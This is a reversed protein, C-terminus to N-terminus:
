WCSNLHFHKWSVFCLFPVVSFGALIRWLKPLHSKSCVDGTCVVFYLPWIFCFPHSSFLFVFFRLLVAPTCAEKAPLLFQWSQLLFFGLSTQCEVMGFAPMALAVWLMKLPHRVCIVRMSGTLVWRRWSDCVGVTGAECCPLTESWTFVTRQQILFSVTKFQQALTARGWRHLGEHPSVLGFLRFFGFPRTYLCHSHLFTVFYVACTPLLSTPARMEQVTSTRARAAHPGWLTQLHLQHVGLGQVQCGEAGRHITGSLLFFLSFFVFTSLM